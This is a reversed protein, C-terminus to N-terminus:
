HMNKSYSLTAFFSSVFQCTFSAFLVCFVPRLHWIDERRRLNLSAWKECKCHTKKVCFRNQRKVLCYSKLLMGFDVDCKRSSMVTFVKPCKMEGGVESCVLLSLAVWVTSLSSEVHACASRWKQHHSKLHKKGKLLTRHLGSADPLCIWPRKPFIDFSM